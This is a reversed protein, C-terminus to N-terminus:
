GRDVRSLDRAVAPGGIAGMDCMTANAGWCSRRLARPLDAGPLARRLVTPINPSRMVEKKDNTVVHVERAECGTGAEEGPQRTSDDALGAPCRGGPDVRCDADNTNAPHYTRPSCPVWM